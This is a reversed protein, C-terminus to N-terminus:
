RYTTSTPDIDAKALNNQSVPEEGNISFYVVRCVYIALFLSIGYVMLFFLIPHLAGMSSTSNQKMPPRKLNKLNKNLIISVVKIFINVEANHHL